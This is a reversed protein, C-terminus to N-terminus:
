TPRKARDAAPATSSRDVAAGGASREAHALAAAVEDLAAAKAERQLYRLAEAMRSAIKRRQPLHM